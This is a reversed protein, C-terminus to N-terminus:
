KGQLPRIDTLWYLPAVRGGEREYGVEEAECVLLHDVTFWQRTRLSENFM